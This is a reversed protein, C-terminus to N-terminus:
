VGSGVVGLDPAYGDIALLGCDAFERWDLVDAVWDVEGDALGAVAEVHRLRGRGVGVAGLGACEGGVRKVGVEVGPADVQNWEGEGNRAVDGEGMVPRAEEEGFVGGGVGSDDGDVLVAGEACARDYVVFPVAGVLLPLLRRVAVAGHRRGVVAHEEDAVEAGVGHVGVVQGSAGSAASQRGQRLVVEVARGSKARAVHDEVRRAVAGVEDVFEAAGHLREGVFIATEARELLREGRQRLAEVAVGLAGCDANRWAAAPQQGGVAAVVGDGGEGDLVVACEARFLDYRLEGAAEGAVEYEGRLVAHDDAM